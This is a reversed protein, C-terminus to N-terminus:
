FLKTGDVEIGAAKLETALEIKWNGALPKYLVGSLDSPLEVGSEYLAVVRKRTLHGIFFGLELVVNQRPRASLSDM